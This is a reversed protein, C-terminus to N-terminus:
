ALGRSRSIYRLPVIHDQVRGLAQNSISDFGTELLNNCKEVAENVTTFDPSKLNVPEELQLVKAQERMGREFENLQSRAQHLEEEIAAIESDVQLNIFAMVNENNKGRVYQPILKDLDRKKEALARKRTELERAM